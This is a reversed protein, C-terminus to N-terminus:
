TGVSVVGQVFLSPGKTYGAVYRPRACEMLFRCARKLGM